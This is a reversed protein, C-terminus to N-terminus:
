TKRQVGGAAGTVNRGKSIAKTVVMVPAQEALGDQVARPVPFMVYQALFYKKSVVDLVPVTTTMWIMLVTDFVVRMEVMALSTGGPKM